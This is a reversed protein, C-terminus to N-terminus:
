LSGNEFVFAETVGARTIEGATTISSIRKFILLQKRQLIELINLFHMRIYHVM